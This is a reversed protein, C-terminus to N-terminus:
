STSASQLASVQISNSVAKGRILSSNEFPIKCGEGRKGEIEINPRRMGVVGIGSLIAQRDRSSGEDGLHYINV